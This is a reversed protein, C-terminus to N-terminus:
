TEGRWATAEVRKNSQGNALEKTSEVRKAKGEGEVSVVEEDGHRLGQLELLLAVLVEAGAVIGTRITQVGLRLHGHGVFSPV